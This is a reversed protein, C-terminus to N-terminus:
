PAPIARFFRMPADAVPTSFMIEGTPSAIVNTFIQWGTTLDTQVQIVYVVNPVGSFGVTFNGNVVTPPQSIFPPGVINVTYAKTGTCGYQNTAGVTFNYSGTLVTPFGYFSGTTSLTVGPPLSGSVLGYLITDWPGQGPYSATLTQGYAATMMGPPLTEPSFTFEPCVVAQTYVQFGTCGTQMDQASVTFVYTGPTTPAGNIPLINGSQTGIFLGTPFGGSVGLFLSVPGSDSLATFYYSMVNQGVLLSPSVMGSVTINPCTVDLTVVSSTVSGFANTIIVDYNGAFWTTLNTLILVNSTTGSVQWNETLPEGDKRWQYALPEAGTATVSFTANSGAAATLNQPQVTIQPPGLVTVVVTGTATLGFSDQVVYTFTDTGFFNTPATYTLQAPGGYYKITAYDYGSGSGASYGTVFMNGSGDVVVAQAEDHDNGPGNYRNTWLPV